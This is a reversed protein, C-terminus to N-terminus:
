MKRFLTHCATCTAKMDRLTETMANFTHHEAQRQLSQAHLGLKGALNLYAKQEEATLGLDKAKNALSQATTQLESAARYIQKSYRSREIDMEHETMFRELMLGNMRDMLKQLERDQVAHLAPEGLSSFTNSDPSASCASLLCCFLLILAKTM